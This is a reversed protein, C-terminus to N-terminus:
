GHRGTGATTGGVPCTGCRSADGGGEGYGHSDFVSAPKTSGNGSAASHREDGTAKSAILILSRNSFFSPFIAFLLHLEMESVLKDNERM